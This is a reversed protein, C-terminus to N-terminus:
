AKRDLCAQTNESDQSHKGQTSKGLQGRFEKTVLALLQRSRDQLRRDAEALARVEDRYREREQRSAEQHIKTFDAMAQDRRAMLDDCLSHDHTELAKQLRQTLDGARQITQSLEM